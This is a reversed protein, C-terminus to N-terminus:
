AKRTPTAIPKRTSRAVVLLHGASSPAVMARRDRRPLGNARIQFSALDMLRTFCTASPQRVKRTYDEQAEKYQARQEETANTGTPQPRDFPAVASAAWSPTGALAAYWGGFYNGSGLAAFVALLPVCVLWVIAGRLIAPESRLIVAVKGAVWSGIEFALFASFVRLALTELNIKRLDTVQHEPCLLHAGIAIGIPVFLLVAVLAALAGVCIASWHIPWHAWREHQTEALIERRQSEANGVVSASSTLSPKVV